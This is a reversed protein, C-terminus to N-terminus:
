KRHMPVDTFDFSEVSEEITKQNGINEKAMRGKTIM